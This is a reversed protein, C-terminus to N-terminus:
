LDIHLLKGSTIFSNETTQSGSHQCGKVKNQIEFSGVAWILSTDFGDPKVQTQVLVM